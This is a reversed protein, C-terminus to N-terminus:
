RSFKQCGLRSATLAFQLHPAFANLQPPIITSVVHLESARPVVTEIMPVFFGANIKIKDYHFVSKRSSQWLIATPVTM